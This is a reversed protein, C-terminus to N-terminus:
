LFENISLVGHGENYILFEEKGHRHIKVIEKNKRTSNLKENQQLIAKGHTPGGVYYNIYCM